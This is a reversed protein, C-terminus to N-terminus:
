CAGRRNGFAKRLSSLAEKIKESGPSREPGPVATGRVMEIEFYSRAEDQTAASRFRLELIEM